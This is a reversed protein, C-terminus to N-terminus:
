RKIKLVKAPPGPHNEHAVKPGGPGSRMKRYLSLKDQSEPMFYREFAKNTKHGTVLRAQEPSAFKGMARASTHRTGGYLDVGEIGLNECARKWWKYFHRPGYPEGATVGKRDAVHRFFPLDQNIVPPLARIADADEDLLKIIRYGGRKTSEPILLLGEGRLVDRERLKLLDAPRLELYTTLWLIGMYIKRDVDGAIRELEELVTVQQDKDLTERWGLEYVVYPIEPVQDRTLVRRKQLWTFFAHLCSRINARTKGSLDQGLLFDEIDAFTIEKVNKLGWAKKARGMYNKLNNFSKPKVEHVKVALWKDALNAFGLPAERQYDRADFSGEDTKYRIGVLFREAAKLDSGFRKHIGKFRVRFRGTAKEQPHKPCFLGSRKEDYLFVGGCVRCRQDSCIAGNM